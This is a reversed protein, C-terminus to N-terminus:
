LNIKAFDGDFLKMSAIEGTPTLNFAVEVDGFQDRQTDCLFTAFTQHRLPLNLRNWHLTLGKKGSEVVAKGYASNEYEGAFDSLAVPPKVGEKRQKRYTKTKERLDKDIKKLDAKQADDWEGPEGNSHGLLLDFLANRFSEPLPSGANIFIAMGIKREPILAVHSRFGDIAGGHCLVGVGGRHNQIGWGLGYSIQHIFPYRARADVDMPCITHPTHTQKLNAETLLRSGDPALGGSLQFKLWALMERASSNMSGCPGCNDFNLYDIKYVKGEFRRHPKAHDADRTADHSSFNTRTMGLPILLAERLYAEYSAAGSAARVAEGAALFCINQYQYLTRFPATLKAYGIRRLIEERGYDSHYWLMDHRPLGTRHCLLDRITVQADAHIDSLRFAPLHKRVMDDFSMKGADTLLAVATATFAKTTSANAFLTDATVPATKGLEKVGYGQVYAEDGAVVALSAGPAGARERMRELIADVAATDISAMNSM